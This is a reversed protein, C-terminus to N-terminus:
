RNWETLLLDNINRHSIIPLELTPTLLLLVVPEGLQRNAAASTLAKKYVCKLVSKKYM